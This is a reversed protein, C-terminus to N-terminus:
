VIVMVAVFPVVVRWALIRTVTVGDEPVWGGFPPANEAGRSIASPRSTTSMAPRAAKNMMM